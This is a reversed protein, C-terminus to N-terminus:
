AQKQTGKCGGGAHVASARRHTQWRKRGKDDISDTLYWQCTKADGQGERHVAVGSGETGPALIGHPGSGSFRGVEDENRHGEEKEYIHKKEAGDVKSKSTARAGGNVANGKRVGRCRHENSAPSARRLLPRDRRNAM